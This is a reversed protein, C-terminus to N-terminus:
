GPVGKVPIYSKFTALLKATLEDAASSEAGRDNDAKFRYLRDALAQLTIAYKFCEPLRYFGDADPEVWGELHALFANIVDDIYYLHMIRDPDHIAVPLERAINYCFTAVVSHQNPRAYRGFTNTLRYIIAPSRNIEAHRKLGEEAALKSKGYLTDDEAQISSSLLVPCRNNNNRLLNLLLAFLDVNVKIFDAQNAPRHVAALHYVFDCDRTYGNLFERNTDRNYQFIKIKNRAALMEVLNRGIFGSAGTIVIKIMSAAKGVRCNM